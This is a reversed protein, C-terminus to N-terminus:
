HSLTKFKARAASETPSMEFVHDFGSMKFVDMVDPIVNCLILLGSFAKLKKATALLMWMGASSIDEIKSFDLLLRYHGQNIYEFLRKEVGPTSLVDLRGNLRLVLLNGEEEEKIGVLGDMPLEVKSGLLRM